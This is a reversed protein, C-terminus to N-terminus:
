AARVAGGRRRRGPAVRVVSPRALRETWRHDCRRCCALRVGGQEFVEDCSVDSGGCLRCALRPELREEQPAERRAVERPGRALVREVREREAAERERLRARDRASALGRAPPRSIRRAHGAPQHTGIAREQDTAEAPKMAQAADMAAMAAM